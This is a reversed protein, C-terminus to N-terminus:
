FFHSVWSYEAPSEWNNEYESKTNIFNDFIITKKSVGKNKILKKFDAIEKLQVYIGQKFCVNVKDIFGMNLEKGLSIIFSSLFDNQDLTLPTLESIFVLIFRDYKLDFFLDSSSLEDTLENLKELVFPLEEKYLKRSGPYIYIKSTEPLSDFEVLM